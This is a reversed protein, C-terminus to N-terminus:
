VQLKKEVRDFKSGSDACRVGISVRLHATVPESSNREPRRFM